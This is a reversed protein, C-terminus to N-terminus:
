ITGGSSRRLEVFKFNQSDLCLLLCLDFDSLVGRELGAKVRTKKSWNPFKEAVGSATLPNDVPLNLKLTFPPRQSDHWPSPNTLTSASEELHKRQPSLQLPALYLLSVKSM